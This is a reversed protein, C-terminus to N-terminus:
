LISCLFTKALLNQLKKRKKQLNATGGPTSGLSFSGFDSTSGNCWPVARNKYNVVSESFKWRKKCFFEINKVIVCFVSNKIIKSFSINSKELSKFYILGILM